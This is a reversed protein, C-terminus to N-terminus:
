QREFRPDGRYLFRWCPLAVSRMQTLSIDYGSSWLDM